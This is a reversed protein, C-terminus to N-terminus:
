VLSDLSTKNSWTYASVGPFKGRWIDTLSFKEILNLNEVVASYAGSPWCDLSSDLIM